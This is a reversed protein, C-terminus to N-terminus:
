SPSRAASNPNAEPVAMLAGSDGSSGDLRAGGDVGDALGIDAGLGQDPQGLDAPAGADLLRGADPPRVNEEDKVLRLHIPLDELPNGYDDELKVSLVRAIQADASLVMPDLGALPDSGQGQWEAGGVGGM